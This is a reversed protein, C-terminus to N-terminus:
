GAGTATKLTVLADLRGRKNGGVQYRTCQLMYLEINPPASLRLHEFAAALDDLARQDVECYIMALGVQRADRLARAIPPTTWDPNELNFGHQLSRLPRLLSRATRAKERELFALAAGVDYGGIGAFRQLLGIRIDHSLNEGAAELDALLNEAAVQLLPGNPPARQAPNPRTELRKGSHASRADKRDSRPTPIGTECYDEQLVVEWWSRVYAAAESFQAQNHESLPDSKDSAESARWAEFTKQLDSWTFGRRSFVSRLLDNENRLAPLGMQRLGLGLVIPAIENFEVELVQLEKRLDFALSFTADLAPVFLNKTERTRHTSVNPKDVEFRALLGHTIARARNHEILPQPAAGVRRGNRVLRRARLLLAQCIIAHAKSTALLIQGDLCRIHAGIVDGLFRGLPNVDLLDIRSIGEERKLERAVRGLHKSSVSALYRAGYHRSSISLRRSALRELGLPSVGARGCLAILEPSHARFLNCCVEREVDDVTELMHNDGCSVDEWRQTAVPRVGNPLLHGGCDAVVKSLACVARALQSFVASRAAPTHLWVAGTDLWVARPQQPDVTASISQVGLAQARSSWVQAVHRVIESAKEGVVVYGKQLRQRTPGTRYVKVLM